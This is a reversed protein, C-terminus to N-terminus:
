LTKETQMAKSEKSHDYSSDQHARLVLSRSQSPIRPFPSGQFAVNALVLSPPPYDSSTPIEVFDM